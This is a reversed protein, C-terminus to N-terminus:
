CQWGKREGSETRKDDGDEGNTNGVAPRLIPYFTNALQHFLTNVDPEAIAPPELLHQDVNKASGKEGSDTVQAPVQQQVPLRRKLRDWLYSISFTALTLVGSVLFYVWLKKYVKFNLDDGMDMFPM